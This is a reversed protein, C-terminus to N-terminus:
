AFPFTKAKGGYVSSVFVLVMLKFLQNELMAILPYQMYFQGCQM